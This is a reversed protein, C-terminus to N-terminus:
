DDESRVVVEYEADIVKGGPSSADHQHGQGGRHATDPSFGNNQLQRAIWRLRLYFVLWAVLGVLVVVALVVLGFFFAAVLAMAALLGALLRSIPNMPPPGLQHQM